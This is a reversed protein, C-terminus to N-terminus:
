QKGYKKGFRINTGFMIGDQYRLYMNWDMSSYTFMYSLECTFWVGDKQYGTKPLPASDFHYSANKPLEDIHEFWIVKTWSIQPGVGITLASRDSCPIFLRVTPTYYWQIDRSPSALEYEIRGGYTTGVPDPHVVYELKSHPLNRIFSYNLGWLLPRIEVLGLRFDFASAEFTFATGIGIGLGFYQVRYKGKNEYYAMRKQQARSPEKYEAMTASTSTTSSSQVQKTLTREFSVQKNPEVLIYESITNYGQKSIAIQHVGAKLNATAPTTYGQWVDDIQVNAEAPTSKIAIEGHQEKPAELQIPDAPTQANVDITKETSEHNALKATVKHAGFPLTVTAKGYGAPVSEDDIFILANNEVVFTIDADRRPKPQPTGLNVVRSAYSSTVTFSKTVPNCDPLTAKATHKGLTLKVTVTGKGAATKNGDVYISANGGAHIEVDVKDSQAYVGSCAMCIMLLFLYLKKM